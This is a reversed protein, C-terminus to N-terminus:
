LWEVTITSDGSAGGVPGAGLDPPRDENCGTQVHHSFFRRVTFVQGCKTCKGPSGIPFVCRKAAHKVLNSRNVFPAGCVRCRFRKPLTRRTARHDVRCRAAHLAAVVDSHVACVHREIEDGTGEFPCLPCATAKAGCEARHTVMDADSVACLCVGCTNPWHVRATRRHRCMSRFSHRGSFRARCVTHVVKGGVVAAVTKGCEVTQAAPAAAGANGAGAASSWMRPQAGWRAGGGM